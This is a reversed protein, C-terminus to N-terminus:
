TKLSYEPLLESDNMILLRHERARDKNHISVLKRICQEPSRSGNRSRVHGGKVLRSAKQRGFVSEEKVVGQGPGGQPEEALEWDKAVANWGAKSIGQGGQARRKKCARGVM